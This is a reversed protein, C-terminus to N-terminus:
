DIPECSAPRGGGCFCQLGPACYCEDPRYFCGRLHECSAKDRFTKDWSKECVHEPDRCKYVGGEGTLSLVCDASSLCEAESFGACVGASAGFPILLVACLMIMFTFKPLLTNM